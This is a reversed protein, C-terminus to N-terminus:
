DDQTFINRILFFPTFIGTLLRLVGTINTVTSDYCVVSDQPMLFPNEGDNDSQKLLREVRRDFVTTEGTLRNTQVLAVRRRANTWGTGGACGAAVVAQSFRTGYEFNLIKGGKEYTPVTLNSLFVPIESPTVQSPRVLDNQAMKLAPIVVRDGAVLPVDPVPQGTFIGSLNFSREQKGRIVQVNRIDATPKVGGAALIAASLYRGPPYEGSLAGPESRNAAGGDTEHGTQNILVRGPRFVEGSVMVQIPAWQAVKLSLQFYSPQFFGRSLLLDSLRKEVQGVELGVVPVPELFPIQLSGDLNVEYLGSLRFQSDPPLDDDLPTQLRVRDGPSLPLAWAPAFGHFSVAAVTMLATIATQFRQGGIGSRDSIM